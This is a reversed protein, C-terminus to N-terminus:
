ALAKRFDATNNLATTMSKMTSWTKCSPAGRRSTLLIPMGRVARIGRRAAGTTSGTVVTAANLPPRSHPECTLVWRMITYTPSM